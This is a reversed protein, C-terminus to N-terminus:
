SAFSGVGGISTTRGTEVGKGGYKEREIKREREREREGDAKASGVKGGSLKREGNKENRCAKGEVADREHKGASEENKRRKGSRM